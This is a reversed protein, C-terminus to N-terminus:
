RLLRIIDKRRNHKIEDLDISIIIQEFLERLHKMTNELNYFKTGDICAFYPSVSRNVKANFLSELLKKLKLYDLNNCSLDVSMQMKGKYQRIIPSFIGYHDEWEKLRQEYEIYGYSDLDILHVRDNKVLFNYPNFDTCSYNSDREVLEDYIVNYHHISKVYHGKIYEMEVYLVHDDVEYTFDPIVINNFKEKQLLTLNKVVKELKAVSSFIMEKRMTLSSFEWKDHKHIRLLNKSSNIKM